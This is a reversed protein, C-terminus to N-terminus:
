PGLGPADRNARLSASRGLTGTFRDARVARRSVPQRAGASRGYVGACQVGGYPGAGAFGEHLGSRSDHLASVLIAPGVGGCSRGHPLGVSNVAHVARRGRQGCARGASRWAAREARGVRGAGAGGAVGTERRVTRDDHRDEFHRAVCAPAARGGGSRRCQAATHGRCLQRWRCVRVPFTTHSPAVSRSFRSDFRHDDPM